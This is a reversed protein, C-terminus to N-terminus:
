DVNVGKNLLNSNIYYYIIILASYIGIALWMVNKIVDISVMENTIFMNMIDSNFLGVIFIIGLIIGQTLMYCIFGFLISFPMKLNNKRHGLIIGTYGIQVAFLMELFLIFVIVLLLNLITSDYIEAIPMLLNKVVQLNEKSYYAIFMSLAIVIMSTFMTVLASLFRAKYITQKKVPLTHTLYAEDKYTNRVFRAWLRLINNILINIMMSITFGSCIKAIIDMVFSNEISFFIRTLLAFVVSLIYFVILAKNNWKLDYKLLKGLM